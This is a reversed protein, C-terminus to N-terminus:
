NILSTKSDMEGWGEYLLKNSKHRIGLQSNERCLSHALWGTWPPLLRTIITETFLCWSGRGSDCVEAWLYGLPHAPWPWTRVQLEVHCGLSAHENWSRGSVSLHILVGLLVGKACNPFLVGRGTVFSFFKLCQAVRLGQQPPPAKVDTPWGLLLHTQAQAPWVMWREPTPGSIKRPCLSLVQGIFSYCSHRSMSLQPVCTNKHPKISQIKYRPMRWYIVSVSLPQRDFSKPSNTVCPFLFDRGLVKIRHFM